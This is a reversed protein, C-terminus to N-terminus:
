TDACVCDPPLACFLFEDRLTPTAAARL